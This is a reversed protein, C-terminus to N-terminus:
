KFNNEKARKIADKGQPSLWFQRALEYVTDVGNNAKVNRLREKEYEDLDTLKKEVEQEQKKLEEILEKTQM